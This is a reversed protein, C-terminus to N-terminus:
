KKLTGNVVARIRRKADAESVVKGTKKYEEYRDELEKKFEENYEITDSEEAFTKVVTLVAQKQKDNLLSLYDTIQKDIPKAAVM